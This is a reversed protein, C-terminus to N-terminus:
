TTRQVSVVKSAKPGLKLCGCCRKEQRENMKRAPKLAPANQRHSALHRRKGNNEIVAGAFWLLWKTIDIGQSADELQQYYEEPPAFHGRLARAHAADAGPRADNGLDCTRYPWQRGRLPPHKRVMHSWYRRTLGAAAEATLLPRRLGFFFPADRRIRASSPSRLSCTATCRGPSSSCQTTTNATAASRTSTADAM